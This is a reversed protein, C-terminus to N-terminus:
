GNLVTEVASSTPGDAPSHRRFSHRVFLGDRIGVTRPRDNPGCSAPRMAWGAGRWGLPSSGPRDRGDEVLPLLQQQGAQRDDLRERDV